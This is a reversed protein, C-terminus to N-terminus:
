NPVKAQPQGPFASRARQAQRLWSRTQETVQEYRGDRIAELLGMETTVGVVAAYARATMYDTMNSLSVAGAPMLKVEPYPGHVYDIFRPGGVDCPFIKVIDAGSRMAMGIETPTMCGPISVAGLAKTAEIVPPYADPSVIVDAGSDIAQKAQEVTTVTGAAIVVAEGHRSRLERIVKTVGPTTFAVEVIRTGGAILADVTDITQAATEGRMIFCLWQDGILEIVRRDAATTTVKM